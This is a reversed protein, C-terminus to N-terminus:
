HSERRESQRRDPGRYEHSISQLPANSAPARQFLLDLLAENLVRLDHALQRAILKQFHHSIPAQSQYLLEFASVPLSATTVSGQAKCTATRKGHDILAILGFVEGEKMTHLLDDVGDAENYRTVAVKGELILYMADGRKGERIFVHDNPHQEITMAEALVALESRPFSKFLSNSQLLPVIEM